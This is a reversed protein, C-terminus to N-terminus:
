LENTYIYIVVSIQKKLAHFSATALISEPFPLFSATLFARLLASKDTYILEM